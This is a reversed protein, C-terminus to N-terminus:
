VTAATTSDRNYMQKVNFQLTKLAAINLVKDIPHPVNHCVELGVVNLITLHQEVPEKFFEFGPTWNRIIYSLYAFSMFARTFSCPIIKPPTDIRIQLLEIFILVLDNQLSSQGTSFNRSHRSRGLVFGLIFLLLVFGLIFLLFSRPLGFLILFFRNLSGASSCLTRGFTIGLAFTLGLALGLCFAAFAARSVIFCNICFVLFSGRGHFLQNAAPEVGRTIAKRTSFTEVTM